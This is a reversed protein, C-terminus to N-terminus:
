NQQQPRMCSLARLMEVRKKPMQVSVIATEEGNASVTFRKGDKDLFATVVALDKYLVEFNTRKM